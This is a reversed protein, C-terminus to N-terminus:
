GSIFIADLPDVADRGSPCDHRSVEWPGPIDGGTRRYTIREGLIKRDGIRRVFVRNRQLAPNGDELVEVELIAEFDQSSPRSIRKKFDVLLVGNGDFNEAPLYVREFVHIGGDKACLRDVERDLKIKARECGAMFMLM